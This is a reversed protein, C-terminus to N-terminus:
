RRCLKQTREGSTFYAEHIFLPNKKLIQAMRYNKSKKRFSWREARSIFYRQRFYDNACLDYYRQETAKTLWEREEEAPSHEWGLPLDDPRFLETKMSVTNLFQYNLETYEEPADKSIGTM